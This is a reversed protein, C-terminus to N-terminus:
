ELSFYLTIQSDNSLFRISMIYKLMKYICLLIPQHMRSSRHSFFILCVYVFIGMVNIDYIDLDDMAMARRERVYFNHVQLTGHRRITVHFVGKLPTDPGRRNRYRNLSEKGFIYVINM